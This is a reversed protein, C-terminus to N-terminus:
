SVFREEHLQAPPLGAEALTARVADALGPPGCLYVDREACTPCRRHLLAAASTLRPRGRPRLRGPGGRVAPSHELEGRFLLDGAARARYLLLLDQGPALPLTEFLARMPTIGVGGAVLLVHRRTRRAATIAGYPGEAM